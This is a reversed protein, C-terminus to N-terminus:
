TGDSAAKFPVMLETQFCHITLLQGESFALAYAHGPADITLTHNFIVNGIPQGFHSSTRVLKGEITVEYSAMDMEFRLDKTQYADDGGLFGDPMRHRFTVHDYMGM